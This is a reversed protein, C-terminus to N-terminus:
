WLRKMVFRMLGSERGKARGGLREARERSNLAFGASRRSSRSDEDSNVLKTLSFKLASLSLAFSTVSSHLFLPISKLKLSYQSIQYHTCSGHSTDRPDTVSWVEDKGCFISSADENVILVFHLLKVQNVRRQLLSSSRLLISSISASRLRDVRHSVKASKDNTEM